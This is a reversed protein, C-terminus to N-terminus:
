FGYKNGAEKRNRRGEAIKEELAERNQYAEVLLSSLQGRKRAGKSVKSGKINMKPAAPEGGAGQTLAKKEEREQVEKKAKEMERLANVEQTDDADAGEFGKEKKELARVGRDYDAKWKNYFQKYYTPDYAEWTGSPRQYYGPYPDDPTPEPPIYEDIKPASSISLSSTIGIPTTISAFPPKASSLSFLDAIALPSPGPAKELSSDELSVNLKGKRVSAPMFPLSMPQEEMVDLTDQLDVNSSLRSTDQTKQSSANNFILGPGKGSGLIREPAAKVPAALKPAPLKSFLASSGAGCSDMRPKKAPRADEGDNDASNDKPLAPLDIAIKKPAKKVRPTPLTLNSSGPASLRSPAPLSLSSKNQRPSSRSPPIHEDGSNDSSDSGYADVLM